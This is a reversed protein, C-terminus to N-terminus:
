SWSSPCHCVAAVRSLETLLAIDQATNDFEFDSVIVSVPEGGPMDYERSYIHKYLGSVTTDSADYFDQKLTKKDVDLIELRIPSKTGVHKVLYKLSRWISEAKQFDPHHLIEDIQQSILQDLKGIYRDLLVRDVRGIPEREGSVMELLVKLAATLREGLSRNSMADMTVFDDLYILDNVPDIEAVRCISQYCEMDCSM